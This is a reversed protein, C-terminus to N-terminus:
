KLSYSRGFPEWGCTEKVGIVHASCPIHKSKRSIYVRIHIYQAIKIFVCVILSVRLNHGLLNHSFFVWVKYHKLYHRIIVSYENRRMKEFIISTRIMSIVHKSHHPNLSNLSVLCSRKQQTQEPSPVCGVLKNLRTTIPISPLILCRALLWSSNEPSRPDSDVCFPFEVSRM